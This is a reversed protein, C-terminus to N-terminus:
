QGGMRYMVKWDLHKSTDEFDRYGLRKTEKESVILEIRSEKESVNLEIRSNIGNSICKVVGRM